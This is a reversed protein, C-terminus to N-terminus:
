YLSSNAAIEKDKSIRKKLKERDAFKKEDRIKDLFDIKIDLGYIDENFDLIHTEITKENGMNVTPRLGINCVGKYKKGQIQVSVVYVGNSPLIKLPEYLKMNATPFGLTHGIRNGVVVVGNLSYNHGLMKNALKIDGELIHERIKTSSVCMGDNSVEKVKVATIGVEKAIQIIRDQTITRDNGITHDYGIVLDAIGYKDKLFDSLFEKASLKSFERSFPIVIFEDIGAALILRKKEEIDTLLRLKYADQQLIARPHPWFTIIASKEKKIKAIELVQNIIAMHGIHVGDFFGTAAVVM